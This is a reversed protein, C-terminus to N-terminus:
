LNYRLTDHFLLRLQSVFLTVLRAVQGNYEMVGGFWAAMQNYPFADLYRDKAESILSSPRRM